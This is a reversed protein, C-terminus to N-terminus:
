RNLVIEELLKYDTLKKHNRETLYIKNSPNGGNIPGRMARGLVQMALTPSKIEGLIMIANMGPVDIGTSLIQHNVIVKLEKKEFSNLLQKRKADSTDGVILGNEIGLSKIYISIAIAHSKTEAYIIVNEDQKIINQLAQIVSEHLSQYYESKNLSETSALVEFKIKSLYGNEVLFGIPSSIINDEKDTIELYTHFLKKLSSYDTDDNRFPTATLGIIQGKDNKEKYLNIVENRVDAKVGHAEDLVLYDITSLYERMKRSDLNQGILQFGGFTIKNEKSNHLENFKGFYRCALVKRDGKQKWYKQFSLLSQEALEKSSVFWGIHLDNKSVCSRFLDIIVEMALVTKGAGTPMTVLMSNFYNNDLDHLIKKKLRLQYDHPFSVKGNCEGYVPISYEFIKRSDELHIPHYKNEINFKEIFRETNKGYNRILSDHNESGLQSSPISDILRERQSNTSILNEGMKLAVANNLVNSSIADTERSTFTYRLIKTTEKGLLQTKESSSLNNILDILSM